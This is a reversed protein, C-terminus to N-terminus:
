FDERVYMDAFTLKKKKGKSEAKAPASNIIEEKPTSESQTSLPKIESKKVAVTAPNVKPTFQNQLSDERMADLYEKNRINYNSITIKETEEGLTIGNLIVDMITKKASVKEQMRETIYQYAKSAKPVSISKDKKGPHEDEVSVMGLSMYRGTEMHYEIALCVMNSIPIETEAELYNRLLVDKKSYIVKFAPM